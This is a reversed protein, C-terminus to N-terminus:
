QSKVFKNKFRLWLNGSPRNIYDLFERKNLILINTDEKICESPLYNILSKQEKNQQKIKDIAVVIKNDSKVIFHQRHTDYLEKWVMEGRHKYDDFPSMPFWLPLKEGCEYYYQKFIKRAAYLLDDLDYFKEGQRIMSALRWTFDQFLLSDTRNMLRHVYEESDAKRKEDFANNIGLYYIRRQAQQVVNFGTANTTGILVPHQGEIDNSVHKILKEGLEARTSSFFLPEIEDVLVPCLNNSRFYDLIIGKKSITPYSMYNGYNGLLSSIFELLTSKGTRAMGAVILFPSFISRASDRGTKLVYNDRVKWVYPAMFSYLIAEMVRSQNEINTSVTFLEYANIFSTITSLRDQLDKKELRKSFPLLDPSDNEQLLLTNDGENFHIPVRNDLEMSTINSRSIIAKIPIINRKIQPSSAVTYEDKNKKKRFILEITKIYSNKVNKEQQLKEPLAQLSDMDKQSIIIQTNQQAADELIATLGDIDSLLVPLDKPRKKIIDPIFEQTNKLIDNFRQIYIDYLPSNDFIIIDEYQRINSFASKTFNASGIIVRNNESGSLLYLKSHIITKETAYRISFYEKQIREKTYEDLSNWFEVKEEPSFTKKLSEINVEFNELYQSDETGLILLVKKFGKITKFFFSASSVYTVALLEDYINSDFLEEVSIEVPISDKIIHLYRTNEQFLSEQYFDSM